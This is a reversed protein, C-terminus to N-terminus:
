FTQLIKLFVESDFVSKHYNQFCTATRHYEVIRAVSLYAIVFKHLM